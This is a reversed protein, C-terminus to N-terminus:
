KCSSTFAHLSMWRKVDKILTERPSTVSQLARFTLGSTENVTDFQKALEKKESSTREGRRLLWHDEHACHQRMGEWSNTTNGGFAKIYLQQFIWIQVTSIRNEVQQKVRWPICVKRGDLYLLHSRRNRLSEVNRKRVLVLAHVPKM